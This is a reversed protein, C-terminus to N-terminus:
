KIPELNQKDGKFSTKDFIKDLTLKNYSKETFHNKNEWKLDSKKQLIKSHPQFSKAHFVVKELLLQEFLIQLYLPQISPMIVM